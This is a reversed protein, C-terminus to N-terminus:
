LLMIAMAIHSFTLASKLILKFIFLKEEKLKNKERIFLPYFFSNISITSLPTTTLPSKNLGSSNILGNQYRTILFNRQKINKVYCTHQLCIKCANNSVHKKNWTIPKGVYNSFDICIHPVNCKQRGKEMWM